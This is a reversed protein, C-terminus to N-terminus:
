KKYKEILTRLIYGIAWQAKRVSTPDKSYISPNYNRIIDDIEEKWVTYIDALADEGRLAIPDPLEKKQYASMFASMGMGMERATLIYLNTIFFVFDRGKAKPNVFPLINNSLSM